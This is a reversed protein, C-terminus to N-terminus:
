WCGPLSSKESRNDFMGSCSPPQFEVWNVDAQSSPKRTSMRGLRLSVLTPHRGSVVAILSCVKSWPVKSKSM